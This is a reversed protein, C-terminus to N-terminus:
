FHTIVGAKPQYTAGLEHKQKVKRSHCRSPTDNRWSIAEAVIEGAEAVIQNPYQGRQAQIRSGTPV